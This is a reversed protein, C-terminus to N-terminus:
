NKPSNASAHANSATASSARYCSGGIGEKTARCQELSAFGCTKVASSGSTICWDEKAGSAAQAGPMQTLVLITCCAM